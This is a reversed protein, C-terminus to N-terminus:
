YEAAKKKFGQTENVPEAYKFLRIAKVTAGDNYELLYNGSPLTDLATFSEKYVEEVETALELKKVLKKNEDLLKISAKGDTKGVLTFSLKEGFNVDSVILWENDYLEKNQAAKLIQFAKRMDPIGYGFRNDPTAYRDASQYVAQLIDMNNVRPFAQWLCAILGNINPNSFSTGSGSTLGYYAYLITGSGVSAINPKVKGPYGFSSFNAINKNVDTAAVACVSDDDSPFIIYKWSNAGENGASNTVLIGKKSAATAARSVMTANKYLDNYTHNFQPDDFQMYGLSSTIMNVGASDAFEAAAAWNHEEVPYESNVNESRLLWFSADPATGVMVGPVNSAIASLCLEGHDHDENVSGDFDVFDKEGLFRNNARTSDFAKTTKYRFFGADIVAITVGEGTFGRNHLFEGNHINIQNFSNGYDYRNAAIINENKKGATLPATKEKFKNEKSILSTSAPGVANVSKVFALNRIATITAASTTHILIQNLWKSQSLYSVTGQALVQTIYSPNVPLDSSDVPINFWVRRQVSKPSLYQRPRDLRYPSNNKDKFVVVYKTYQTIGAVTLSCCFLILTFIRTCHQIM